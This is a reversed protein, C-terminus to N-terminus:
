RGFATLNKITPMHGCIVDRLKLRGAANYASGSKKQFETRSSYKIAEAQLTDLTWYGRQFKVKQM